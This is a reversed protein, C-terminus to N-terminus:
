TEFRNVETDLEASISGVRVSVDKINSIATAVEKIGYDIEKVANSVEGSIKSVREVSSVVSQSNSNIAFAKEQVKGSVSGLFTMAELIQKGGIELETTSSAVESLAMSVEDVKMNIEDFAFNTERGSEATNEIKSIIVKLTKEIKKSNESSAEALKRIEDAVVAFGKGADGAHAAEIAANMALLDTQASIDQIISAMSKIDNVSNNIEDIMKSTETLKDGGTRATEVLVKTAERNKDTLNSVSSIAATMETVSATSEEVMAMQEEIYKNLDVASISIGTIDKSSDFIFKDLKSIKNTISDINAAIQNTSSSTESATCILDEKVSTNSNSLEKIQILASRLGKQFKNMNLGLKEIEDKSNVAFDVSLDGTAMISVNKEISVISKEITKAIRSSFLISLLLILLAACLSCIGTIREIASIEKDIIEFQSTIVDISTELTNDLILIDRKVNLVAHKLEDYNKSNRAYESEVAELDFTITSSYVLDAAHLLKKISEFLEDQSRTEVSSLNEVALIAREIRKNLKPLIYINSINDLVLNKDEISKKYREQQLAIIVKSHYFRSTEVQEALLYIKLQLLTSSEEEIRTMIKEIFLYAGICLVVVTILSFILTFLKTRIKM